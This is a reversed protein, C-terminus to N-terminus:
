RLLIALKERMAEAWLGYGKASLHLHDPMVEKAITGDESVFKAGIDLFTVGPLKALLENTRRVKERTEDPRAGRPFIALLLIRAKPLRERLAELIAEVGGAIQKESCYGMNNTGIMLVVVKPDLGDIGGNRIRWLVHQTSDGGIGFNGAKLPALEKEWVKKGSWKWGETISDGLLLVDVGGKRAEVALAEHKKMWKEDRPRPKAAPNDQLLLALWLIM